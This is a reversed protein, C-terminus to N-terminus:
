RATFTGFRKVLDDVAVVVQDGGAKPPHELTMAAAPRDPMIQNLLLMFGDEFRARTPMMSVGGLTSGVSETAM